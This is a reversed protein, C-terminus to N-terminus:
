RLGLGFKTKGLFLNCYNTFVNTWTTPPNTSVFVEYVVGIIRIQLSYTNNITFNYSNSSIASVADNIVSKLAIAEPSFEILVMNGASDYRAIVALTGAEVTWALELVTDRDSLNLVAGTNIEGVILQNNVIENNPTNASTLIKIDSWNTNGTDPFYTTLTTNNSAIFLSQSSPLLIVGAGVSVSIQAEGNGANVVKAGSFTLKNTNAITSNNDTVLLTPIAIAVQGNNNNTLTVNSFSIQEVETVTTTGSSVSLPSAVGTLQSGDLPPLGPNGGVSQIAVLNGFATGTNATAATGLGLNARATSLNTLGALNGSKALLNPFTVVYSGTGNNSLNADPFILLFVPSYSQQGDSLSLSPLSVVIDGNGSDTINSSPFTIRDVNNVTNVPNGNTVTLASGVGVGSIGTLLSGDLPPLGPVGNVDEIELIDGVDVGTDRTAATGLGLNTRAIAKNLVDALNNKKLLAASLTEALSSTATGITAPPVSHTIKTLHRNNNPYFYAFYVTYTGATQNGGTASILAIANVQFLGFHIDPEPLAAIPTFTTLDDFTFTQTETATVALEPSQLTINNSEIYIYAKTPTFTAKLNGQILTDPYDCRVMGRATNTDYPHEVEVILRDGAALVIDIGTVLPCIGPETSVVARIRESPLVGSPTSEIRSFGGLAGNITVLQNATDAALFAVLPQEIVSNIIYTPEITAKGGLRKDPVVLLKDGTNLILDGTIAAVESTISSSVSGLDITIEAGAPLFGLLEENDFVFQVDFAVAYGRELDERLEIPNVASWVFQENAFSGLTRIGTAREITGRNTAIIKDFFLSSRDEGNVLVIFNYRSASPVPSLSDPKLGNSLWIRLATTALGIKAPVSLADIASSLVRDCGETTSSVYSSFTETTKIWKEIGEFEVGYSLVKSDTSLVIAESDYRYYQNTNSVLRIAGNIAGAPLLGRDTVIGSLLFHEDTTLELSLPLSRMTVQDSDRAKIKALTVAETAPTTYCFNEDNICPNQNTVTGTTRDHASLVYYFVEEGSEVAEPPITWILKNGSPISLSVGTSLLNRGARNELQLYFTYDYEVTTTGGGVTTLILLNSELRPRFSGLQYFM